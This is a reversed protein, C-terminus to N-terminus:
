IVNDSNEPAIIEEINRNDFNIDSSSSCSILFTPLLLIPSSLIALYKKKINM